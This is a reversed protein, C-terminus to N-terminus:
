PSRMGKPKKYAKKHRRRATDLEGRDQLRKLAAHVESLLNASHKRIGSEVLRDRVETPLIAGSATHVVGRVAQTLSISARGESEQRVGFSAPADKQQRICADFHALLKKRSKIARDIEKRDQALQAIDRRIKEKMSGYDALDVM